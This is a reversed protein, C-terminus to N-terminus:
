HFGPRDYAIEKGQARKKALYETVERKSAFMGEGHQNMRPFDPDHTPLSHCTFHTDAVPMAESAEIIRKWRVGDLVREEGWAPREAMPFFFQRIEGAENQMDYLPM